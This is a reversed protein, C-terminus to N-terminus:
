HAQLEDLQELLADKELELMSIQLNKDSVEQTLVTNQWRLDSDAVADLLSPNSSSTANPESMVSGLSGNVRQIRCRLLCSRAEAAGEKCSGVGSKTEINGQRARNEELQQLYWLRTKELIELGSCLADKEKELDKLRKIWLYFRLADLSYLSTRLPIIVVTYSGSGSLRCAM